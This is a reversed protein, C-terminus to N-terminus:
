ILAILSFLSFSSQHFSILIDLLKLQLCLGLVFFFLFSFSCRWCICGVWRSFLSLCALGYYFLLFLICDFTMMMTSSIFTGQGADIRCSLTKTEPHDNTARTRRWCVRSVLVSARSRRCLHGARRVLCTLVSLGTATSTHTSRFRAHHRPTHQRLCTLLNFKPLNKKYLYGLWGWNELYIGNPFFLCAFCVSLTNPRLRLSWGTRRTRICRTRM